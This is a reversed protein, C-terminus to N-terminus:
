PLMVLETQPDIRIVQDFGDSDINKALRHFAGYDHLPADASFYVVKEGNRKRMEEIKSIGPKLWFWSSVVERPTIFYLAVVRTAGYERLKKVLLSREKSDGTWCDLVIKTAPRTQLVFRLLRHMVELIYWQAGGYPNTDTSGFKRMLLEDRSILSLDPQNALLLKAYHSKGAGRQSVLLYVCKKKEAKSM